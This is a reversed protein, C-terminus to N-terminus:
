PQLDSVYSQKWTSSARSVHVTRYRCCRQENMQITLFAYDIKKIWEGNIWEFERGRVMINHHQHFECSKVGEAEVPTFMSVARKKLFSKSSNPFEFSWTAEKHKLYSWHIFQECCFNFRFHSLSHFVSLRWLLTRHEQRHTSASPKPTLLVFIFQWCFCLWLVEFMKPRSYSCALALVILYQVDSYEFIAFYHLIFMRICHADRFM